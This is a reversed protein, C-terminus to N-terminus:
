IIEPYSVGDLIWNNVQERIAEPLRAVKGNGRRGNFIKSNQNAVSSFASAETNRDSPTETPVPDPARHFLPSLTQSLSKSPADLASPADDIPGASPPLAPAPVEQLAAEAPPPVQHEQLM